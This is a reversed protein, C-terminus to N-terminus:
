GGRTYRDATRAQTTNNAGIGSAVVGGMVRGLAEIDRPHLRIPQDTRSLHEPGGTQNNVISRGPPIWGGRDMLRTGGMAAERLAPDRVAGGRAYQIHAHNYHGPAMFITKFGKQRAIAVIPRLYAQERSSTGAGRNVDIARGSYHASGPSHTGVRGFAPHEGVTYGKSQLWRGFAVLGRGTSGGLAGPGGGIAEGIANSVARAQVQGIKNAGRGVARNMPGPVGPVGRPTTIRGGFVAGGAAYGRLVAARMGEIARHGGAAAVERATWVHENNSLRATFSDSTGTGPGRAPGGRAMGATIGGRSSGAGGGVRVGYLTKPLGNYFRTSVNVREDHIGDLSRNVRDRFKNFEASAKRLKGGVGPVWGFAKAAGELIGGAVDLWMKILFRFTPKLVGNWMVKAAVSIVKFARDVIKRFTDSHKYAYILGAALLAIATIVLGIPNARMTGNLIRQVTTMVTTAITVAKMTASYILLVGTVVGIVKGVTVLTDKNQQTWKGASILAPVVDEGVYTAFRDIYPLLQTGISEGLNGAITKLRQLPDAAAEAAGGFEKNLEALIVKQAGLTDGAEVMTKIQDKQQKTFTVGVEALASVGAIPDNLAKGLQISSGKLGEASVQGNNLAATMDTATQAAQDFINNGKGVENRVNTFTLLLNAGSQIAEDDVGTKNSMATALNGVQGATIRAAGGTTKIVQATLRGIRASERAGDIFGAFVDVVAVGAFIGGLGKAAKGISSNLGDGFKKGVKKGDRSADIRGLKRKVEPEFKDMDPMVSVFVDALSGM